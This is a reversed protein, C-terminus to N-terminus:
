PWIGFFTGLSPRFIPTYIPTRVAVIQPNLTSRYTSTYPFYLGPNYNFVGIPSLRKVIPYIDTSSSSSDNYRKRRKKKKKKASDSSSSSSDDYRKRIKGGSLKDDESDSGSESESDDANGGKQERIKGYNDVNKIFNDIANDDVKIDMTNITFKGGKMNENVEFHHSENSSINRMTFVFKPVHSVIHKTLNLWMSKAADIPSTSEYVDQFSGEILPNVLQFSDKPM